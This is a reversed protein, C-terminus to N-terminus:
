SLNSKNLILSVEDISLNTAKALETKSRGNKFGTTIIERLIQPSRTLGQAETILRKLEVARNELHADLSHLEEQREVFSEMLEQELQANIDLKALLREQNSQLENLVAESRRLRAFFWFLALLFFIEAVSAAILIWIPLQM